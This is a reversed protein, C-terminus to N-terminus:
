SKEKPEKWSEGWGTIHMDIEEYGRVAAVFADVDEPRTDWATMLRVESTEPDWTYFPATRRLPELWAQPLRAFVANTEVPRSIEIGRQGRLGAELRKAMANSHRAIELWLGDGLWAEFQAAIFRMKSALQLNQKRLWPFHASLDPRLFVVAEGFLLGNKTGGLSVVDVGLKETIDALDCKLAAAANVLRTGDVHVLMDNAHAWDAIARVDDPDYITGLETPQTLSVLRPQSGHQDRRRLAVKKLTSLSLKGDRSELPILKCGALREPAGCEDGWLHSADSCLVAQWSDCVARVSLVNAATGNFVFFAEATPGFRQRLVDKARRSLEDEEYSPAHGVNAAAIAELIRPHVGARNDSAFGNIM